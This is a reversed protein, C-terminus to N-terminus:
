KVISFKKMVSAREGTADSVATIRFIYIDSAVSRIDWTLANSSPLHPPNGGPFQGELREIRRGELNYVDVTVQANSNVYFHFNVEASRAPSPWAYVMDPPLFEGDPGVHFSRQSYGRNVQLDYGTVAAQCDGAAFGITSVWGSYGATDPTLTLAHVASDATWVL